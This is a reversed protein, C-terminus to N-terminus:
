RRKIENKVISIQNQVQYYLTTADNGKLTGVRYELVKLNGLMDLLRDLSIEKFDGAMVLNNRLGQELNKINEM